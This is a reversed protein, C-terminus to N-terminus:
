KAYVITILSASISDSLRVWVKRQTSYATLLTALGQNSIADHLYFMRSTNVAWDGIPSSTTNKLMVAVRPSGIYVPGALVVEASSCDVFAFAESKGYIIILSFIAFIVLQFKIKSKLM